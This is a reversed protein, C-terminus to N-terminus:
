PVIHHPFSFINLLLSFFWLMSSFVPFVPTKLKKPPAKRPPELGM